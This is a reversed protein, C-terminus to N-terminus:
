KVLCISFIAPFVVIVISQSFLVKANVPLIEARIRAIRNETFSLEIRPYQLFKTITPHAFGMGLQFARHWGEVYNTEQNGNRANEFQSWLNISFLPKSRKGLRGPSGLWTEEFYKLYCKVEPFSASASCVQDFGMNLVEPPILALSVCSKILTRVKMQQGYVEKLGLDQVKRWNAQAFHM